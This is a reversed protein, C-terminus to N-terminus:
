SENRLLTNWLIILLILGAFNFHISTITIVYMYFLIGGAVVSLTLFLYVLPMIIEDMFFKNERQRELKILEKETM